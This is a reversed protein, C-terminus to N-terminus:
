GRVQRPVNYCVFRGGIKQAYIRAMEKGVKGRYPKLNVLSPTCDDDRSSKGKLMERTIKTACAYRIHM